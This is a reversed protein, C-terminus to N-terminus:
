LSNVNPFGTRSLEMYKMIQLRTKTLLEKKFGYGTLIPRGPYGKHHLKWQVKLATGYFFKPDLGKAGLKRAVWGQIARSVKDNPDPVIGAPMGREIYKAYPAKNSLRAMIVPHTRNAGVHWSSRLRGRDVAGVKDTKEVAKIQGWMATSIAAWRFAETRQKHTSLIFAPYDEVGMTIRLGQM